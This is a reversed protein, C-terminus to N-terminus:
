SISKQDIFHISINVGSHIKFIIKQEELRKLYKDIEYAKVGLYDALDNKTSTYFGTKYSLEHIAVYLEKANDSLNINLMVGKDIDKPRKLNM